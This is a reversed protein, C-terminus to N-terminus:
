NQCLFGPKSICSSFRSNVKISWLVLVLNGAQDIKNITNANLVLGRLYDILKGDGDVVTFADCAFVSPVGDEDYDYSKEWATYYGVLEADYETNETIAPPNADPNFEETPLHYWLAETQEKVSMPKSKSYDAVKALAVVFIVIAIWSLIAKTTQAM